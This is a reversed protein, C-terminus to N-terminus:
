VSCFCILCSARLCCMRFLDQKKVCTRQSEIYQREAIHLWLVDSEQAARQAAAVECRSKGRDWLQRVAHGIVHTQSWAM